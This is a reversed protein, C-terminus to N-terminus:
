ADAWRVGLLISIDIRQITALKHGKSKQGSNRLPKPKDIHVVFKDYVVCVCLVCAIGM